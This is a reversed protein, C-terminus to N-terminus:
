DQRISRIHDLVQGETLGTIEQIPGSAADIAGYGVAWAQGSRKVLLQQEAGDALLRITAGGSPNDELHKRVIFFNAEAPTSDPRQAMAFWSLYARPQLLIRYAPSEVSLVNDVSDATLLNIQVRKTAETLANTVAAVPGAVSLEGGPEVTAAGRAVLSSAGASLLSADNFEKELRLARASAEAAPGRRLNLLVLLEAFGFGIADPFGEAAASRATTTTETV